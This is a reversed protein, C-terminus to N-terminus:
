KVVHLRCSDIEDNSFALEDLLSLSLPASTLDQMPEDLYFFSDADHVSSARSSSTGSSAPVKENSFYSDTKLVIRNEAYM